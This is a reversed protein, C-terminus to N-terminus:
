PADTQGYDNNGWCTITDDTRIACAHGDGVTLTKFTGSPADAGWITAASPATFTASPLEFADWCTITHARGIRADVARIGCSNHGSVAVTKFSGIPVGGWDDKKWCGVNFTDDHLGCAHWRGVDVTKYTGPVILVEGPGRNPFDQMDGAPGGIWWGWCAISDDTRIACSNDEYATVTKFTGSPGDTGGFARSGWCDITDDTRIGCWHEDGATLTKFTGSPLSLSGDGWCDITDDTRIGCSISRLRPPSLRLHAASAVTKFTGSPADAQGVRGWCTITDDTRIACAHRAGTTVTKFTGSPADAQGHENWGWCTITDDTRIGCSHAWGVTVTKFTGPAPCKPSAPDIKVTPNNSYRYLFTVLHARTLTDDPAFTTQTTGTTIGTEAMWAVAQQQWGDVVDAFSHAPAPPEGALRHLFAAAQGRTLTDDPAFTTSTTGTTIGTEAMWSIADNQNTDTVDVFSHAAAAPQGELNHLWVATEGRSVPAAPEFCPGGANAIGNDQSWQVPNTYWTEEPVDGYGAVAGAPSPSWM